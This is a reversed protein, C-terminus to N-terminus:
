WKDLVRSRKLTNRKVWLRYKVWDLYTDMIMGVGDFIIIDANIRNNWYDLEFGFHGEPFQEYREWSRKNYENLFDQYSGRKQKQTTSKTMFEQTSKFSDLYVGEFLLKYAAFLVIALPALTLIHVM